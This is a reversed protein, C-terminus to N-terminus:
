ASEPSQDSVTKEGPQPLEVHLRLGTRTAEAEAEAVYPGVVDPVPTVSLLQSMATGTEYPWLLRVMRAGLTGGVSVLGALHRFNSRVIVSNLVVTGGAKKVNQIGRVTQMFGGNTQTVWDHLPAIPGHLPVAFLDVGSKRLVRVLGEYALARGDAQVIVQLAGAAKVREVWDPLRDLEAANHGSFMVRAGPEIDTCLADVAAQFANGSDEADSCTDCTPPCASGIKVIQVGRITRAAITANAIHQIANM